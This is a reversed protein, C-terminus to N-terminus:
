QLLALILWLSMAATLGTKLLMVGLRAWVAGFAIHAAKEHHRLRSQECFYALAFSGLLMGAITGIIPIFSTGIIAGIVGGLLAAVGALRSGGRKQIGMFGALAELLEVAICLLIFAWLTGWGPVGASLKTILAAALVVWTGSLALASLLLALGCLLLTLILLLIEM